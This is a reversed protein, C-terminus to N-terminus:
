VGSRFGDKDIRAMDAVFKADVAQIQEQLGHRRVTKRWVANVKDEAGVAVGIV